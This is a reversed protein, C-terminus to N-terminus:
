LYNFARSLDDFLMARKVDEEKKWTTTEDTHAAVVDQACNRAFNLASTLEDLDASDIELTVSRKRINM